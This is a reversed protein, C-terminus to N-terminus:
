KQNFLFSDIKHNIFDAFAYQLILAIIVNHHNCCFVYKLLAKM